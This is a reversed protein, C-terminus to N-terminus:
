RRGEKSSLLVSLGWRDLETVKQCEECLGKKFLINPEAFTQRTGCYGCDFKGWFMEGRQLINILMPELEEYTKDPPHESM